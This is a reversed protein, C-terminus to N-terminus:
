LFQMFRVAQEKIRHAVCYSVPDSSCCSGGEPTVFVMRETGNQPRATNPKTFAWLFRDGDGNSCRGQSVDITNQPLIPLHLPCQRPDERHAAIRAAMRRGPKRTTPLFKGPDGM